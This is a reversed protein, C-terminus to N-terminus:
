KKRLLKEKPLIPFPYEPHKEIGPFHEQFILRRGDEGRDLSKLCEMDEDDIEFDQVDFNEAIRNEHVSKPLVVIGRQISFRLAIQAPSKKYKKAIKVVGPNEMISPISKGLLQKLSGPSGLTTHASVVINNRQCFDVLSTQQFELHVEIQLNSPPIRANDLLRQIQRESFNAVGISKTLGADVLEELARWVAIHDINELKLNGEADKPMMNDSEVGEMWGFPGHMLYMDVYDLKLKELSKKLYKPALEARLANFPLKTTIFVDERNLKGSTFWKQLVKGITHENFYFTATDIHRYGIELATNLSKELVDDLVYTYLLKDGVLFTGLAVAPIKNGNNLDYCIINKFSM